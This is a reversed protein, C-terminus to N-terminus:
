ESYDVPETIPWTLLEPMDREMYSDPDYSIAKALADLMSQGKEAYEAKEDQNLEIDLWTL